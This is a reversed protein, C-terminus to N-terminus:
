YFWRIMMLQGVIISLLETHPETFQQTHLIFVSRASRSAVHKLHIQTRQTCILNTCVTQLQSSRHTVPVNLSEKKRRRRKHVFVLFLRNQKSIWALLALHTTYITYVRRINQQKTEKKKHLWNGIVCMTLRVSHRERTVM